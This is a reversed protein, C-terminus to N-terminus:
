SYCMQTCHGIYSDFNGQKFNDTNARVVGKLVNPYHLVFKQSPLLVDINRKDLQVKHVTVVQLKITYLLLKIENFYHIFHYM